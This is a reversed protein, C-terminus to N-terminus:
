PCKVEGVMQSTEPADTSVEANEIHLTRNRPMSVDIAGPLGRADFRGLIVNMGAVSIRSFAGSRRDLVATREGDSWEDGRWHGGSVPRLIQWLEAVPFFSIDPHDLTGELIKNQSPVLVRYRGCRVSVDFATIGLLGLVRLRYAEGPRVFFLASSARRDKGDSFVVKQSATFAIATAQTAHVRADELPMMPHMAAPACAFFFFFPVLDWKVLVVVTSVLFRSVLFVIRTADRAPRFHSVRENPYAVRVAIPRIPSRARAHKVLVETKSRTAARVCRFVRWSQGGSVFSFWVAHRRSGHEGGLQGLSELIRNGIRNKEPLADFSRQGVALAKPEREAAAVLM